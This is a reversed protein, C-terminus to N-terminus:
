GSNGTSAIPLTVKFITGGPFSEVSITGKHAEIIRKSIALGLGTGEKKTTYFPEFIHGIIDEPIGPGNDSVLIEVKSNPGIEKPTNIKITLDGGQESIANIGNTILNVFVQELARRDGLISPSIEPAHLHFNIHKHTERPRFKDLIVDLMTPLAITEKRYERSGSFSLVSKMLDTLREFDGQIRDIQDHNADDEPLNMAMVQLGTSINNIPNRVEHAFIASIEGLFAQNELQQARTRFEEKDSLDSILIAIEEVDGDSVIPIVHMNSPISHGSRHRLSINSLNHSSFGQQAAKLAPLISPNSILLKDLPQRAAEASNFGLIKEASSNFSNVILETDTLIIGDLAHEIIPLYQPISRNIKDSSTGIGEKARLTIDILSAMLHLLDIIDEPPKSIQDAAVVIGSHSGATKLPVTALYNFNHAIAAQHLPSKSRTGPKWLTSELYSDDDEASLSTPLIDVSGQIAVQELPGGNNQATYIALISCGTLLQGAQLMQQLTDSNTPQQSAKILLNLSDWRQKQLEQEIGQQKMGSKTALTIVSWNRSPGLPQISILIDKKIGNRQVLVGDIKSLRNKYTGKLNKGNNLSILIDLKIDKLEQRTYASLETAKANALTVKNSTTDVLLGAHPLLDLLTEIENKGLNKRVLSGILPPIHLGAKM